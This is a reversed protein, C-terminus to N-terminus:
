SVWRDDWHVGGPVQVDASREVMNAIPDACYDVAFAAAPRHNGSHGLGGFPLMSSAGATGTNRNICGAKVGRFFEEYAQDDTTFISAALGYRTANAQEIAHNLDDVIAIQVFPGFVECDRDLRFRDVEVVGPTIFHGARDMATAEVLVRGGASALQQQFDLVSQVAAESILPGMFVPEASTGPGILLTSAAKCFAPLFREAISRQVIIRRTCTCRQGTTAFSARVCEIVAQKLHCDDMVVAPNNGGMELAIIRGPRDLNAQLIKHGVSWSGTFLIGDIGDGEVLRSAVDAGGQVVNFVGSPLEAEHMLEALLQGVAPTKESPKFVITNGLLLAPVFHGNPLHAPFNFPGIVAMVGHPKFRCLGARSETVGVEYERVRGLSVDNLTVDIKAAVAQAEAISEGSIKGMEDTILAALRDAHDHVVQQWRRLAEVREDFSAGSWEPLAQRAARIADDAHELVPQGQWIVQPPEAPNTSVISDGEIPLFRGGVYDSPPNALADTM